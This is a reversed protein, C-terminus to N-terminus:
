SQGNRENIPLGTQHSLVHQATLAEAREKDEAPFRSALDPIIKCLPTKLDFPFKFKGLGNKAENFQNAIILKLVLYAFAAKSLSAARFISESTLATTLHVHKTISRVDQLQNQHLTKADKTPNLKTDFKKLSDKDIPIELLENKAKNVYFLKDAYRVYAANSKIPLDSLTQLTPSSEMFVLSCTSKQDVGILLSGTPGKVDFSAAAIGAIDGAEMLVTVNAEDIQINGRGAAM